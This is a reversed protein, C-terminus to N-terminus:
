FFHFKLKQKTKNKIKFDEFKILIQILMLNYIAPKFKDAEIEQDEELSKYLPLENRSPTRQDHDKQKKLENM